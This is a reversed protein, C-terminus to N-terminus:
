AMNMVYVTCLSVVKHGKDRTGHHCLRVGGHVAYVCGEAERAGDGIVVVSSVAPLTALLFFLSNHCRVNVM